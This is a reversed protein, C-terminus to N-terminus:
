STTTKLYLLDAYCTTPSHPAIQLPPLNYCRGKILNKNILKFESPDIIDKIAMNDNHIEM